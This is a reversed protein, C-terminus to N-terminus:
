SVGREAEVADFANQMEIDVFFVRELFPRARCAIERSKLVARRIRV